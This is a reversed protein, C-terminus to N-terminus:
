DLINLIVSELSESDRLAIINSSSIDTLLSAYRKLFQEHVNSDIIFYLSYSTKEEKIRLSLEFEYNCWDSKLFDRTVYFLVKNAQNLGTAIERKVTVLDETPKLRYKDIWVLENKSNLYPILGEVREKQISSHSLFISTGKGLKEFAKYGEGELRRKYKESFFQYSLVDGEEKYFFGDKLIISSISPDVPYSNFGRVGIRKFLTELAIDPRYLGISFLLDKMEEIENNPNGEYSLFVYFELSSPINNIFVSFGTLVDRCQNIGIKNLLNFTEDRNKFYDFEIIFDRRM